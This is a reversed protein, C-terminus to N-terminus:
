MRRAIRPAWNYIQMDTGCLGAAGVKVRVEGQGPDRPDLERLAVGGEVPEVKSLSLM